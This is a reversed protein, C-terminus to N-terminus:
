TPGKQVPGAVLPGPTVAAEGTMRDGTPSARLRDLLAAIGTPLNRAVLDGVGLYALPYVALRYWGYYQSGETSATLAMLLAFGAFALPIRAERGLPRRLLMAALGVMGVSWLPDNLPVFNWLGDQGSFLFLPGAALSTHRAAQAHWITLFQQWDIAAGYAAFLGVGVPAALLALVATGWRRETLLAVACAAGVVVGPVKVLPALVCLALMAATPRAGPRSALLLGGLLMPALLWESEVLRSAEVVWPTVCFAALAVLATPTGLFRRGLRYLLGASVLSLAIPVLRIAQPGVQTPTHQGALLAVGGVLLGFLPPADFYPHVWPLLVGGYTRMVGVHAYGVLYSWSSPSHHLWLSQGLWAWALEDQNAGFPPFQTYGYLRLAAGAVLLSVVITLEQGELALVVLGAPSKVGAASAHGSAVPDTDAGPDHDAPHNARRAPVSRGYWPLTSTHRTGAETGGTPGATGIRAAGNNRETPHGLATEAM